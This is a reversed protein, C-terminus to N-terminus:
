GQELAATASTTMRALFSQCFYIRNVSGISLWNMGAEFRSEFVSRLFCVQVSVELSKSQYEM